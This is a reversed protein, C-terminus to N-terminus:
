FHKRSPDAARRWGCVCLWRDACHRSLGGYKVLARQERPQHVVPFKRTFDKSAKKGITWLLQRQEAFLEVLAVRVSSPALRMFDLSGGTGDRRERQLRDGQLHLAGGLLPIEMSSAM